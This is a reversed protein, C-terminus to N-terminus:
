CGQGSSLAFSKLEALSLSGGRGRSIAKGPSIHGLAELWWCQGHSRAMLAAHGYRVAPGKGRELSRAWRHGGPSRQVRARGGKVGLLWLGVPSRSVTAQRAPSQPWAGMGKFGRGWLTMPTLLSTTSLLFASSFPPSLFPQPHTPLGPIPTGRLSRRADKHLGCHRHKVATLSPPNWGGGGPPGCGEEGQLLWPCTLRTPRGFSPWM